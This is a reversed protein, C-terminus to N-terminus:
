LLRRLYFVKLFLNSNYTVLRFKEIFIDEKLQNKAAGPNADGLQTTCM